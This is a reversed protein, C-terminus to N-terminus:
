LLYNVEVIILKLLLEGYEAVFLKCEQSVVGTAGIAHNIQAVVTQCFLCQLLQFFIDNFGLVFM